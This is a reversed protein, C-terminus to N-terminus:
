RSSLDSSLVAYDVFAERFGWEGETDSLLSLKVESCAYPSLDVGAHFWGDRVLAKSWVIKDNVFVKLVSRGGGGRRTAGIYLVSPGESLAVRRELRCPKDPASAHVVLFGSRNPEPPVSLHSLPTPPCDGDEIWNTQAYLNDHVSWLGRWHTDKIRARLNVSERLVNEEELSRQVDRRHAVLAREVDSTAFAPSADVLIGWERYLSRLDSGAALSFLSLVDNRSVQSAGKLAWKLELFRPMFDNGYTKELEEVLAMMKGEYAGVLPPEIDERALDLKGREEEARRYRGAWSEREEDAAEPYGLAKAARMGVMSAWGEGLIGPLPGTLSHTMEHAIVAINAAQTGSSQVGINGGASWGGGDGALMHVVLRNAPFDRGSAKRVFDEIKPLIKLVAKAHEELPISYRVTVSSLHLIKEAPITLVPSGPSNPLARRALWKFIAVTTPTNPVRMSADRQACFDWYSLDDAFVVVRGESFTAGVAMPKGAKDVILKEGSEAVHAFCRVPRAVLEADAGLQRLVPEAVAPTKGEGVELHVGFRSALKAIPTKPNAVLLLNGGKEVYQVLMEIESASFPFQCHAQQVMVIDFDELSHKAGLSADSLVVDFGAPRLMRDSLDDYAFLWEHSRDILVRPRERDQASGVTALSIMWGITLITVYSSRM